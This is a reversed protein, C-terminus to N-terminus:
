LGRLAETFFPDTQYFKMWRAAYTTVEEDNVAEDHFEFEPILVHGTYDYLDPNCDEGIHFVGGGRKKEFLFVCKKNDYSCFNNDFEDESIQHWEEGDYQAYSAM